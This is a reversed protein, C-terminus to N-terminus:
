RSFHDPKGATWVEGWHRGGGDITLVEGTVFGSAPGVLYLCAHAIEWADVVRMIPNSRHYGRRAAEDAWSETCM